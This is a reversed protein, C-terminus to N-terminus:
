ALLGGITGNSARAEELDRGLADQLRRSITTLKASVAVAKASLIEIAVDLRRERNPRGPAWSFWALRLPYKAISSSAEIIPCGCLDKGREAARDKADSM